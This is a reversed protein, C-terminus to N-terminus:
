EGDEVSQAVQRKEARTVSEEYLDMLADMEQRTAGDLKRRSLVKRMTKTDFGMSKAEGFVEKMDEAIGQKEEALREIREIFSLLHLDAFGNSTRELDAPMIKECVPEEATPTEHVM